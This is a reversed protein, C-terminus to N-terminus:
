RMRLQIPRLHLARFRLLEGEPKGVPAFEIRHSGAPLKLRGLNQHIYDSFWQDVPKGETTAQFVSEGCTVQFKGPEGIRQCEVSLDFTAPERLYVDWIIRQDTGNWGAVYDRRAKGDGYQYGTGEFQADFGLLENPQKTALLRHPDVDTADAVDMVVVAHGDKPAEGALELEVTRSDLRQRRLATEKPDSLLWAKRMESKLGGVQLRGDSPQDFVHLYLRDGLRTSQGWPQVTLTTRGAPRISAEQTELWRGIGELIDVDKPDITGDGMPGINLLINGGKAAAKAIVEILYAPTKHTPDHKHYGYSENTTPITEWDGEFPQFEVARDGTSLYDGFHGPWGEYPFVIRSNVIIDPKAERVAKLIRLNEEPPLKSATDFWILDPDYNKILERIQPISKGDVYTRMKPVLEPHHDFWNRGGFLERDGGPNDYDWDNGPANPEGWDFAHSYYVGFHIGHRKCAEKLERIPDRGFPTADVINYDSAESDWMAFGDHHKATIVLYRMGAAKILRVWADADFKTPNFNGVVEKRYVPCPIKAMRQIHEAYGPYVKGQWEGALLSSANWHIFCGFRANRWWELRADRTKLSERWWNLDPSNGSLDIQLRPAPPVISTRRESSVSPVTEELGSDQSSGAKSKELHGVLGVICVIGVVRFTKKMSTAIAPKQYCAKLFHITRM